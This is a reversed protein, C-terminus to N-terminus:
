NVEIFNCVRYSSLKSLDSVAFVNTINDTSTSAQVTHTNDAVYSMIEDFVVHSGVIYACLHCSAM